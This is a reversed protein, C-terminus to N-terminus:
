IVLNNKKKLFFSPFVAISLAPEGNRSTAQDKATQMYGALVSADAKEVDLSRLEHLLEQLRLKQAIASSRLEGQLM